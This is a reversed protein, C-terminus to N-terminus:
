SPTQTYNDTCTAAEWETRESRAARPLGVPVNLKRCRNGKIVVLPRSKIVFIPELNSCQCGSRVAASLIQKSKTQM